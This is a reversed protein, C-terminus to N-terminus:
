AGYKQPGSSRLYRKIHQIAKCSDCLRKFVPTNRWADHHMNDMHACLGRYRNKAKSAFGCIPCSFVGDKHCDTSCVWCDADIDEVTDSPKKAVRNILHEIYFIAVSASIYVGIEVYRETLSSFLTSILLGLGILGIVIIIMTVLCNNGWMADWGGDPDDNGPEPATQMGYWAILGALVFVGIPKLFEPVLFLFVFTIALFALNSIRNLRFRAARTRLTQQEIDAFMKKLRPNSM